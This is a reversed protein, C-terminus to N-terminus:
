ACGDWEISNWYWFSVHHIQHSFFRTNSQKFFHHFCFQDRWENPISKTQFIAVNFCENSMYQFVANWQSTADSWMLACTELRSFIQCFSHPSKGRAFLIKHLKTYAALLFGAAFGHGYPRDTTSIVTSIPYIAISQHFFCFFPVCSCLSITTLWRVLFFSSFASAICTYIDVSKAVYKDCKTNSLLSLLICPAIINCFFFCFDQWM